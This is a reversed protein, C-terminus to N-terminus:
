NGLLFNKNQEVALQEQYLLQQEKIKIKLSEEVTMKVQSLNSYSLKLNSMEDSKSELEKTM